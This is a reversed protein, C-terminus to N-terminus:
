NRMKFLLSTMDEGEAKQLGGSPCKCRLAKMDPLMGSFTSTDPCKFGHRVFNTV